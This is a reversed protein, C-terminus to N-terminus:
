GPLWYQQGQIVVRRWRRLLLDRWRSLRGRISGDDDMAPFRVAPGSHAKVPGTAGEAHGM